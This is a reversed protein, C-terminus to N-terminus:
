ANQKLPKASHFLGGDDDAEHGACGGVAYVGDDGLDRSTAAAQAGTNHSM